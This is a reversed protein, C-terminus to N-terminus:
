APTHGEGLRFERVEDWAGDDTREFLQFGGVPFRAAFGALGDYARDLDDDAVGHAVTVHPHYPFQLERDVPGRRIARELLECSALGTAVQVFVVPSIPRFTGTGSLHMTFPPSGAAVAALHDVVQPLDDRELETPPVLTVHPWVLDAQPDGVQRRWWSLVSAHPEPVGIVVGITTRTASSRPTAPSSPAATVPAASARASTTM